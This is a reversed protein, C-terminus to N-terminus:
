AAGSRAVRERLRASRAHDDVELADREHVRGREAHDDACTRSSSSSAAALMTSGRPGARRIKSIVVSSRTRGTAALRARPARAGRRASSRARAPRPAEDHARRAAATPVRARRRARRRDRPHDVDGHRERGPSPVGRRRRRASRHGVGQDEVTMEIADPTSAHLRRCVDGQRGPVRPARCERVGGHRRAQSRRPARRGDAARPSERSRSGRSSCTTPKAPFTLRVVHETM